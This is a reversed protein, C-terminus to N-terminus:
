VVGRFKPSEFIFVYHQIFCFFGKLCLYYEQNQLFILNCVLDICKYVQFALFCTVVYSMPPPDLISVRWPACFYFKLMISLDLDKGHKCMACLLSSKALSHHNVVNPELMYYFCSTPQLCWFIFFIAYFINKVFNVCKSQKGKHFGFKIICSSTSEYFLEM